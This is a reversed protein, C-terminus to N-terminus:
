GFIKDHGSILKTVCSESLEKLEIIENELMDVFRNHMKNYLEIETKKVIIMQEIEKKNMIGDGMGVTGNKGSSNRKQM